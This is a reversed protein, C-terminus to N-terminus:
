DSADDFPLSFLKKEIVKETEVRAEKSSPEKEKQVNEPEEEEDEIMTGVDDDIMWDDSADDLPLAFSKKEPLDQNRKEEKKGSIEKKSPKKEQLIPVTLMKRTRM